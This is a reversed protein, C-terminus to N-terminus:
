QWRHIYAQPQANWIIGNTKVYQPTANKVANDWRGNQLVVTKIQTNPSLVRNSGFNLNISVQQHSKNIDIDTNSTQTMESKMSQETVMFCAKLIPANDQDEDLVTVTYNGSIKLRCRDNPITLQYHTYQTNTNDSQEYEDITNGSAFGDVYDSEILEQSPSWDAECHEIVYSYRHYLHSLEDFSINVTEDGNIGDLTIVPLPSQWNDNAVVQLTAINSVFIENRQAM